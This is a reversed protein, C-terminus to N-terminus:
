QDSAGNMQPIRTLYLSLTDRIGQSWLTGLWFAFLESFTEQGALEGYIGSQIWSAPDNVAAAAAANLAGWKPDNPPIARGADDVGFCYRCWLACSLALGAPRQGAAACNLISPVVFKPQRSSGDFCVRAVTDQIAPNSFRKLITQLYAAPDTRHPALHPLVETQQVKEVFGRILPDEIAEHIYTYGLLAAPYAIMAHSGNLVGIKMREFPRVDSVFQVGVQELAPRGAPFDDELVWQTFEECFVPVSDGVGFDHRIRAREPEGTAPTIRDVMTNPFAVSGAIWDALEADFLRALGTVANRTASGNGPINDCSMITFAPLGLARRVKLGAIILGFVTKPAGPNRSDAVIDPHTADLGTGAADIFYGGETITLSVIRIEPRALAAIIAQTDGPRIMDLLSAVIRAASRDAAQEVITYLCDQAKLTDFHSIESALVGAGIIGWDHDRGMEFLKHLYVAQHARHFNGVGFHLIGARRRAIDFGPGAVRAPILDLNAESLPPIITPERMM